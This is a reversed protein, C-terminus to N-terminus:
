TQRKVFTASLATEEGPSVMAAPMQGHNHANVAHTVPECCFADGDIPAYIHLLRCGPVSLHLVGEESTRGTLLEGEWGVLLSDIFRTPVSGPDFRLDTPLRAVEVPRSAEDARWVGTSSAKIWSDAHRSFYPHFGLGMPMTRAALNRASLSVSLGDDILSYALRALYQYGGVSHYTHELVVESANQGVVSWASSWGYGHVHPGAGAPGLCVRGGILDFGGDFIRNAWPVMPFLASQRPDKPNPQSRLLAARGGVTEQWLGILSGGLAPRVVATM